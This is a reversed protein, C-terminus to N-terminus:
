RETQISAAELLGFVQKVTVNVKLYSICTEMLKELRLLQRPDMSLADRRMCLMDTIMEATRACFDTMEEYSVTNHEECFQWLAFGDEAAVKQLYEAALDTLPDSGADEAPSFTLEICRSRVTPLLRAPNTVCLVFVAGNPPEELLKLAANQAEENMTDADRILYVKRSAENPLIYADASVERIQDVLIQRKQKGKDDTIRETLSVDPHSFAAAKRCAPCSLCPFPPGGRCVAAQAIRVAQSFATEPDSSSLIYAHRIEGGSRFSIDPM